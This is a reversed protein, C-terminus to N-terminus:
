SRVEEAAPEAEVRRARAWGRAMRVCAAVAAADWDEIRASLNGIRGWSEVNALLAGAEALGAEAIQGDFRELWVVLEPGTVPDSPRPPKSPRAPAPRDERASMEAAPEVRPMLLLDRLLYALSATDATAVAKDLPRGGKVEVVPWITTLELSEGGQHLLLFRRVRQVVGEATHLDSVLPVLALGSEALANKAEGIVAESSTYDYNHHVNRADHPAAKCRQQARALAAALTPKSETTM